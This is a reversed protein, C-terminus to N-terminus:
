SVKDAFFILAPRVGYYECFKQIEERFFDSEGTMKSYLTVKSIGMIAAADLITEGKKLVANRFSKEDFM